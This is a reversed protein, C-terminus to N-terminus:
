QKSGSKASVMSCLVLVHNAINSTRGHSGLKETGEIYGFKQIFHLNEDFMLSYIHDKDSM